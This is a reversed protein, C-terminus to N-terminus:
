ADAGAAARFSQQLNIGHSVFGGAGPDRGFRGGAPLFSQFHDATFEAAVRDFGSGNGFRRM